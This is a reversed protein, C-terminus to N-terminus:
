GQVLSLEAFTNGMVSSSCLMSLALCANDEITPMGTAFADHMNSVSIQPISLFAIPRLLMIGFDGAISCAVSLQVSQVSKVGTDGVALPLPAMQNLSPGNYMPSVSTAGTNNDQDTYTVTLNGTATGTGTNWEIWIEVGPFGGRNVTQGVFSQLTTINGVLGSNVWLRDYILLGAVNANAAVARALYTDEGGAANTFSIAGATASTPIEGVGTAPTAGAPPSGVAKWLSHWFGAGETSQNAKYIRKAQSGQLKTLLSDLTTIAM